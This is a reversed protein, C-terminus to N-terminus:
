GGGIWWTALNSSVDTAESFLVQDGSCQARQAPSDLPRLSKTRLDDGMLPDALEFTADQEFQNSGDNIDSWLRSSSRRLYRGPEDRSQFSVYRADALGPMLEWHSSESVDTTITVVAGSHRVRLSQDQYPSLAVHTATSRRKLRWRTDASGNVKGQVIPRGNSGVNTGAVDLALGSLKNTLEMLSSDIRSPKWLQEPAYDCASQEIAAGEAVSAGRVQLCKGSLASRFAFYGDAQAMSWFTQQLEPKCVWLVMDTGEAVSYARDDLCSTPAHSPSLEYPTNDIILPCGEQLVGDPCTASQCVGDTCQNSACDSSSLCHRGLACPACKGGCNLDTEDGSSALDTCSPPQCSQGSCVGSQCDAGLACRKGERCPDCSRGGCDVDSEDVNRIQDTCGTIEPQAGAAGAEGGDESGAGAGTAQVASGGPTSAAIGGTGNASSGGSAGTVVPGEGSDGLTPNGANLYDLSHFSCASSALLALRTLSRIRLQTM